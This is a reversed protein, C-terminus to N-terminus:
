PLFVGKNVNSILSTLRLIFSKSAGNLGGTALGIFLSILGSFLLRRDSGEKGSRSGVDKVTM